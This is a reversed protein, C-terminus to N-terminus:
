SAARTVPKCVTYHGRKKASAPKVFRSAVAEREVGLLTALACEDLDERFGFRHSLVRNIGLHNALAADSVSNAVAARLFLSGLTEGEFPTVRVPLRGFKSRKVLM